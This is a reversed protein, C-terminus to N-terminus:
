RCEPRHDRRGDRSSRRLRGLSARVAVALATAVAAGAPALQLISEEIPIGMVHAVIV